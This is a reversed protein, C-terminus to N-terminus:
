MPKVVTFKVVAHHFQPYHTGKEFKLKVLYNRLDVQSPTSKIDTEILRASTVKGERDVALEYKAFGNIRGEIIFNTPTLLKRGEDKLDGSLVQGYVSSSLLLCFMVLIRMTSKREFRRLYVSKLIM